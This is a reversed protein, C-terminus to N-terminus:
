QLENIITIIKNEYDKIEIEYKDTDELTNKYILEYSKIRLKCYEKLKANRKVTISPLYLENLSELLQLSENWYYIGNKLESLIKEKPTDEPLNYYYVAKSEMTSFEIMKDNYIEQNKASERQNSINTRIMFFLTLFIGLAIIAYKIYRRRRSNLQHRVQELQKHLLNLQGRVNTSIDFEKLIFLITRLSIKNILRCEKKVSMAEDTYDGMSYKSYDQVGGNHTKILSDILVNIVFDVYNVYANNDLQKKKIEDILYKCQHTAIEIDMPIAFYRSQLKRLIFEVNDMEPLGFNRFQEFYNDWKSQKKKIKDNWNESQPSKYAREKKSYFAYLRDYEQRKGSDKLIEYAFQIELFRDHSGTQKDPHHVMVLQRYAKKIEDFSATNSIGLIQYHNQEEM